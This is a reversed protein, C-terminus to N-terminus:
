MMLINSRTQHYKNNLKMSFQVLRRSHQSKTAKKTLECECGSCSCAAIPDLADLEDWIGKIRTYFEEITMDLTQVIKSLEEEIHFLKASSSQGFQHELEDWVENTTKLWLISKSVCSIWSLVLFVIM